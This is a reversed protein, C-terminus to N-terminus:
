MNDFDLGWDDDGGGGMNMDMDMDMGMSNMDSLDIDPLSGMSSLDLDGAGALDQMSQELAKKDMPQLDLDNTLGANAADEMAKNIDDNITQAQMDNISVNPMTIVPPQLNGEGISALQAEVRRHLRVIAEASSPDTAVLPAANDFIHKLM